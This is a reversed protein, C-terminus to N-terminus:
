EDLSDILAKDIFGPDIVIAERTDHLVICNSQFLGINKVELQM